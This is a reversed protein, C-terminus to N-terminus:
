DVHISYFYHSSVAYQVGWQVYRTEEPPRAMKPVRMKKGGIELEM